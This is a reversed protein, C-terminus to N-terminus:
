NIEIVKIPRYDKDLVALRNGGQKADIAVKFLALGTHLFRKISWGRKGLIHQIELRTFGSLKLIFNHPIENSNAM